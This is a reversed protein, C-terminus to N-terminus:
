PGADVGLVRRFEARVEEWSPAVEEKFVRAAKEFAAAEDPTFFHAMGKGGVFSLAPELESQVREVSDVVVWMKKEFSPEFLFGKERLKRLAFGWDNGICRLPHDRNEFGKCHDPDHFFEATQVAAGILESLEFIAEQQLAHLREFKTQQRLTSANLQAKFAEVEKTLGVKFVEVDRSLLQGILARVLWALAAAAVGFLGLQRLM